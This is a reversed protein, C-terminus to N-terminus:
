SEGQRTTSGAGCIASCPEWVSRGSAGCPVPLVTWNVSGNGSGGVTKGTGTLSDRCEAGRVGSPEQGSCKGPSRPKRPRRQKPGLEAGEPGLRQPSPAQRRPLNRMASPVTPKSTRRLFTKDAPKSLRIEGAAAARSSSRQTAVAVPGPCALRVHSMQVCAGFPGTECLLPSDTKCLTFWAESM